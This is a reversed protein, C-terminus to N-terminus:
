QLPGARRVVVRGDERSARLGGPVDFPGQGKWRMVLDDVWGIQPSALAAPDAGADLLLLRIVRTRVGTPLDALPAVAVWAVADRSDSERALADPERSATAEGYASQALEDLTDGDARLLDASRALGARVGPGIRQEVDDLLRRVRVRLYRDDANHPDNWVALGQDDCAQRTEAATVDLFPRLLTATRRPMGSLSRTGSGRALGLLVQEAQDDRTHALLVHSAGLRVRAAELAAYRAERAEAEPGQGTGAAVEVRLVEVSTLGLERCQHAAREAVDGSGPQLGHDVIVAGVDYAARPGEFALAAALALSDAGGSVAALVLSRQAVRRSTLSRRVALRTVAVAAPPGPM